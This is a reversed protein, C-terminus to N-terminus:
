LEGELESCVNNLPLAISSATAAPAAYIPKAAAGM